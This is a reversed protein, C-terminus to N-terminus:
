FVTDLDASSLQHFELTLDPITERKWLGLPDLKAEQHGRQRYASMLQLVRVQKREFETVRTDGAATGSPRVQARAMNAFQARIVSHPVDQLSGNVRPLKSFYDRWQEPVTNPDTLFAEYLEEVYAANGGSLQSSGWLLEMSSKQGEPNEQM